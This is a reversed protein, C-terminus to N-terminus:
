FEIVRGCTECESFSRRSGRGNEYGHYVCKGGCEECPTEEAFELDITSFISDQYGDLEGSNKLTEWNM